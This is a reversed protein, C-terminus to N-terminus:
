SSNGKKTANELKKDRAAIAEDYDDFVEGEKPDYKSGIRDEDYAMIVVDPEGNNFKSYTEKDWGGPAFEDNWRVRAVPKFGAMAYIEPLVTDYADLRDGGRDVMQSLMSSVAGKHPSDGYVFGSVIDGNSKLAIGATGDETSFLRMAQYEELDYVYVSAAWKNNQKLLEISARFDEADKVSDLEFLDPTALGRDRLEQARATEPLKSEVSFRTSESGPDEGRDV